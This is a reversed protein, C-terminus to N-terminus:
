VHARGIEDISVLVHPHRSKGAGAEERATVQAEKVHAALWHYMHDTGGKTGGFQKVRTHQQFYRAISSNCKKLIGRAVIRRWANGICIPRIGPKPAKSLAILRGGCFLRRHNVPTFGEAIPRFYVKALTHLFEIDNLFGEWMERTDWGFLDVAGGRSRFLM